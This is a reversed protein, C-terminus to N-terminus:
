PVEWSSRERELAEAEDDTMGEQDQIRVTLAQVKDELAKIADQLNVIYRFSVKEEELHKIREEVHDIRKRQLEGIKFLLDIAYTTDSM